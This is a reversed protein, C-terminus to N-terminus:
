SHFFKRIKKYQVIYFLIILIKIFRLSQSNSDKNINWYLFIKTFKLSDYYHGRTSFELKKELHFVINLQYFNNSQMKMKICNRSNTM